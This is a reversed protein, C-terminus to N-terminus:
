LKVEPNLKSDQDATFLPQAQFRFLKAILNIPFSKIKTNFIRVCGNYYKRSNAIDTEVQVLSDSLKTFNKDAKLEPYNEAIALLRALRPAISQNLNIVGQPSSSYSQARLNAIETLLNKEHSVYGKVTAVLNPILDWRQKLYIDMTSFAEATREKLDILSNWTKFIFVAIIFLILLILSLITRGDMVLIM